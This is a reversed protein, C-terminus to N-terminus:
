SSGFSWKLISNGSPSIGRLKAKGPWELSMTLSFMLSVRNICGLFEVIRCTQTFTNDKNLICLKTSPPFKNILNFVNM